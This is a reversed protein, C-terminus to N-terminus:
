TGAHASASARLGILNNAPMEPRDGRDTLGLCARRRRPSRRYRACGLRSQPGQAVRRVRCQQAGYAARRMFPGYLFLRATPGCSARPVPWCIRRMRWPAIHIVNACSIALLGGATRSRGAPLRWDPDLLDIRQPPRINALKSHRRWAEISQLHRENYDSPWWTIDPSQGAFEVVHQGTGSGLELADGSKGDLFSALVSWIPRHNRHFAAADLRGDAPPPEDRGFEVVFEAM